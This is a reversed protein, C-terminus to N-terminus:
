GHCDKCTRGVTLRLATGFGTPFQRTETKHCSKCPLRDHSGVGFTYELGPHTYASVTFTATSHCTACKPQVQGLHPDKHCAQCEGSMPKLRKATGSGAPYTRTESPHCKVCPVSQHKGTIAFGAAEHSFRSPAFKVGDVAHCRDCAAGVQGLHVDAHCTGCAMSPAQAKV